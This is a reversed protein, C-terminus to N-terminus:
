EQAQELAEQALVAPIAYGVREGLTTAVNVGVVEGHDNLIPGGSDGPYVKANTQILDLLEIYSWVWEGDIYKWGQDVAVDENLSTVVGATASDTYVGLANGMAVVRDGVEPAEVSWSLTPFGEGEVKLVALDYVPDRYVVRAEFEEGGTNVLYRRDTAV